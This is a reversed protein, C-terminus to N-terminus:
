VTALAVPLGAVPAPARFVTGGREPEALNDATTILLERLEPGGFSVSSVFSTPVELIEVLDGGSTFRAIGEGLAVWVGGEADVALGDCSGQPARAFVGREVAEGSETLRWTLVEATAYDSVYIRDAAPSLGIGNAWTVGDCLVTADDPGAVRWIEGPVPEEGLLPRYRLSGALVRGEPDTHLDNFGTVGEPALLPQTAGDRVHILDRGSVVVGGAAHLVLGGVGRRKQVVTEVTGDPAARYVGGAIVDSFYVGGESDARPGELLGTGLSAVPEM